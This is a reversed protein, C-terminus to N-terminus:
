NASPLAGCIRVPFAGTQFSASSERPSSGACSSRGRSRFAARRTSLSDPTSPTWREVGAHPFDAASHLPPLDGGSARGLRRPRYDYIHEHHDYQRGGVWAYSSRCATIRLANWSSGVPVREVPLANGGGLDGFAHRALYLAPRDDEEVVCALVCGLCQGVNEVIQEGFPVVNHRDRLDQEAAVVGDVM